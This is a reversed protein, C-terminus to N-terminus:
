ATVVTIEDLINFITWRLDFPLADLDGLTKADATESELIEAALQMGDQFGELLCVAEELVEMASSPVDLIVLCHALNLHEEVLSLTVEDLNTRLPLTSLDTTTKDLMKTCQTYNGTNVHSKMIDMRHLLIWDSMIPKTFSM